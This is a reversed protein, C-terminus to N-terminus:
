TSGGLFRMPFSQRSFRCCFSQQQGMKAGFQNPKETEINGVLMEPSFFLFIGSCPSSRIIDPLHKKMNKWTKKWIMAIESPMPSRHSLMVARCLTSIASHAWGTWTTGTSVGAICAFVRQVCALCGAINLIYERSFWQTPKQSVFRQFDCVYGGKIHQLM